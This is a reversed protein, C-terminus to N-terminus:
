TVQASTMRLSFAAPNTSTRDPFPLWMSRRCGVLPLSTQTATWVLFSAPRSPLRMRRSAPTSHRGMVRDNEFGLFAAGDARPNGAQRDVGGGIRVRLRFARDTIDKGGVKFCM